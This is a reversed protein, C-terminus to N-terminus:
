KWGLEKIQKYIAIIERAKLVRFKGNMDLAMMDKFRLGFMIMGLNDHLYTIFDDNDDVKKYGLEEFMDCASPESTEHKNDLADM